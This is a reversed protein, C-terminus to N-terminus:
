SRLEVVVQEVEHLVRAAADAVTSRPPSRVAPAVDAVDVGGALVEAPVHPRHSVGVHRPGDVVHERAGNAMHADVVLRETTDVLRLRRMPRRADARAAAVWFVRM